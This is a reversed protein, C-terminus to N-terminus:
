RTGAARASIRLPDDGLAAYLQRLREPMRTKAAMRELEQHLMDSTVRTKWFAELAVTQKLYARVKRELMERPM